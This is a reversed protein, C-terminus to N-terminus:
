FDMTENATENFQDYYTSIAPFDKGLINKNKMGSIFKVWDNYAQEGHLAMEMCTNKVNDIMIENRKISDSTRVWMLIEKITDIDLPAIWKRGQFDIRKFKRKLFSTEELRKAKPVNGDANKTEDTYTLGFLKMTRMITHMNMWDIIEPNINSNNDDGYAIFKVFTEFDSIKMNPPQGKFPYGDKFIIEKEQPTAKGFIVAFVMRYVTMNFMVNILTTFPNGSPQSNYWRYVGGDRGIHLSRTLCLWLNKRINREEQTSGYEHYFDEVVDLLKETIQNSLSGDFNSYDGAVCTPGSWTSLIKALKEWDKSYPNIGIASENDIKNDMVFSLFRLFYMRFAISFHMPGASFIRTKFNKIKELPRLEDKMTDIFYVEPIKTKAEEILKNVSEELEKWGEGDCKMEKGVWYKKGFPKRQTCWPFGPSKKGNISRITDDGDIGSVSQQITLIMPNAFKDTTLVGKELYRSHNSLDLLLLDLGEVGKYNQKVANNLVNIERKDLSITRILQEFTQKIDFDKYKKNKELIFDRILHNRKKIDEIQDRMNDTIYFNNQAMAKSFPDICLPNYNKLMKQSVQKVADDILSSRILPLDQSCKALGEILADRKIGGSSIWFNYDNMNCIRAEQGKMRFWIKGKDEFISCNDPNQYNVRMVAPAKKIEIPYEKGEKRQYEEKLIHLHNQVPSPIISTKCPQNPYDELKGIYQFNGQPVLQNVGFLDEETLPKLKPEIFGNVNVNCAAFKQLTEQIDDFTIPVSCGKGQLPHDTSHMGVICHTLQPHDIWLVSGCDGSITAAAYEYRDRLVVKYVVDKGDKDKLCQTGDFDYINTGFWNNSTRRLVNVPEISSCSLVVREKFNTCGVNRVGINRQVVLYGNLGSSNVKILEERKIFKNIINSCNHGSIGSGTLLVIVADKEMTAIDDLYVPAIIRKYNLMNSYTCKMRNASSNKSLELHTPARSFTFISDEKLVGKNFDHELRQVYHYPMLIARDHLFTVNGVSKMTGNTSQYDMMYTNAPLVHSIADTTLQCSQVTVLINHLLNEAFDINIVDEKKNIIINKFDKNLAKEIKDIDYGMNAVRASLRPSVSSTHNSTRSNAGYDYSDAMNQVQVDLNYVKYLDRIQKETLVNNGSKIVIPNLPTGLNSFMKKWWPLHALQKEIEQEVFERPEKLTPMVMNEIKHCMMAMGYTFACVSFFALGTKLFNIIPKKNVIEIVREKYKTLQSFIKNWNSNLKEIEKLEQENGIVRINGQLVDFDMNIVASYFDKNEKKYKEHLTQVLKNNNNLCNYDVCYKVDEDFNTGVVYTSPLTDFFDDKDDDSGQTKITIAGNKIDDITSHHLKKQEALLLAGNDLRDRIAKEVRDCLERWEIPPGCSKGTRLEIPEFYYIGYNLRRPVGDASRRIDKPKISEFQENTLFNQVKALSWDLGFKERVINDDIDYQARYPDVYHQDHVQKESYYKKLEPSMVKRYQPKVRCVYSLESMRSVIAEPFTMSKVYDVMNEINTTLFIFQSTFFKGKDELHAMPLPYPQSNKCNILEKLESNPNNESDKVCGFDDFLVFQQSHYGDWHDMDSNRVYINSSSARDTGMVDSIVAATLAKMGDVMSTKGVGSRGYMVMVTPPNRMEGNLAETSMANIKNTLKTNWGSIITQIEKSVLHTKRSYDIGENYLGYLLQRRKKREDFSIEKGEEDPIDGFGKIFLDTCRKFWDDLAISLSYRTIRGGSEKIGMKFSIVEVLYTWFNKVKEFLTGIATMGKNYDYLKRSLDALDKTGPAKGIAYVCVSAFAASFLNTCNPDLLFQCVDESTGEVNVDIKDQKNMIYSWFDVGNDLIVNKLNSFVGFYSIVFGLILTGVSAFFGYKKLIFYILLVAMIGIVINRAEGCKENISEYSNKIYEQLEKFTKSVIDVLMNTNDSINNISNEILNKNPIKEVFSSFDDIFGSVGPFLYDQIGQTNITVRFNRSSDFVKEGFIDEENIRVKLGRKLNVIEDQAREHFMKRLKKPSLCDVTKFDKAMDYPLYWVCNRKIKHWKMYALFSYIDKNTCESNYLKEFKYRKGKNYDNACVCDIFDDILSGKTFVDCFIFLGFVTDIHVIHNSSDYHLSSKFGFDAMLKERQRIRDTTQVCSPNNYLTLDDKYNYNKFVRRSQYYREFQELKKHIQNFHMMISM